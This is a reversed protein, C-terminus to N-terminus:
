NRGSMPLQRIRIRDDTIVIFSGAELAEEIDDLHAVLVSVIRKATRDSRRFLVVSPVSDGSRALIEGFDTDASLLIRQQQAAKAMVQEDHQGALGVDLAHVADHGETNLLGALLVSLCEDVLFRM